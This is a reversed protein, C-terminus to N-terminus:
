PIFIGFVGKTVKIEPIKKIKIKFDYKWRGGYSNWSFQAEWCHLDRYISLSQNILRKETFDYRTNYGIKWNKTVWTDIGGFLQQSDILEDIGKVFNHTVNIRWMKRKKEETGYLNEEEKTLSGQL